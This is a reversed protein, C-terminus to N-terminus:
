QKPNTVLKIESLPFYVLFAKGVIDEKKIYGWDRSDTSSKRNDGLVVYSDSPIKYEVGNKLVKGEATLTNPTLYAENLISGNIYVGSNKLQIIEGPLGIIRKIVLINKNTEGKFIIIDTRKIDEFKISIKEALIQEGNKFTPYMSDGTIELLQGLFFFLLIFISVFVITANVLEKIYKTYRKM